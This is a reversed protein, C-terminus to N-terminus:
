QNLAKAHKESHNGTPYHDKEQTFRRNPNISVIKEGPEAGPASAQGSFSL